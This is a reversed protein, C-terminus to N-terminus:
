LRREAVGTVLARKCAQWTKPNSKGFIGSIGQLTFVGKCARRAHQESTDIHPIM